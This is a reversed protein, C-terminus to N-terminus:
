DGLKNPLGKIPAHFDENPGRKLQQHLVNHVHQYRLGLHKTIELPSYGREASHRIIASKTRFTQKLQALSPMAGERPPLTEGFMEYVFDELSQAPIREPPLKSSGICSFDDRWDESADRASPKFGYPLRQTSDGPTVDPTKDDQGEEDDVGM